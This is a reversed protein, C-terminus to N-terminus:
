QCKNRTWSMGHKMSEFGLNKATMDLAVVYGGIYDMAREAPVQQCARSIVVGLEVEWIMEAGHPVEVQGGSMICSSMPCMYWEPKKFDEAKKQVLMANAPLQQGRHNCITGMVKQGELQPYIPLSAEARALKERTMLAGFMTGVVPTPVGQAKGM